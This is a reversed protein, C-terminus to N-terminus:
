NGVGKRSLRQVKRIAAHLKIHDSITLLQLNDISNNDINGDIHHLVFGKPFSTKKNERAWVFTHECMRGSRVTKGEWWPPVFVTKYGAHRVLEVSNHHNDGIMGFMPNKNGQKSKSCWTSYREKKKELSLNKRAIDGVIWATIELENAIDAYSKDVDQLEQIVTNVVLDSTKNWVM